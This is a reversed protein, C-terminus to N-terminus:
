RLGEKSAYPMFKKKLQQIKYDFESVETEEKAKEVAKAM